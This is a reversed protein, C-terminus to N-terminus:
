ALGGAVATARMTWGISFHPAGPAVELELAHSAGPALAYEAAGAAARAGESAVRM